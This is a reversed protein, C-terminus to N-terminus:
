VQRSDKLTGKYVTGFNGKGLEEGIDVNEPPVEMNDELSDEETM